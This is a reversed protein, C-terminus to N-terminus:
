RKVVRGLEESEVACAQKLHAHTVLSRDDAALFAARIAANRINGGSFEWADAIDDLDVDPALLSAAPLHRRWLEIRADADPADFTVRFQLRRLFAEDIGVLANTTLIAIGDFHDLKQLLFNVELNAYRDSSSKVETRKGFLSDAEDFLLVAHGHRAEAFLRALNKETEGVWKSVIQSLDVRYLAIGLETAIVSAALTKGTGPPGSFLAAIGEGTVHKGLGWQRYVQEAHRRYLVMERLRTIVDKPLILGDWPVRRAVREVLNGLRPRLAEAVEAQAAPSPDELTGRHYADVLAEVQGVAPALPAISRATIVAADAIGDQELRAHALQTGTGPPLRLLPVVRIARTLSTPVPDEDPAYLLVPTALRRAARVAAGLRRAVIVPDPEREPALDFAPLAGALAADRLIRTWGLELNADSPVQCSWLARGDRGGLVRGITHLSWPSPGVLLIPASLDPLVSTPADINPRLGPPSVDAVLTPPTIVADRFAALVSAPVRPIAGTALGVAGDVELLGTALLGRPGGARAVMALRADVDACALDALFGFTIGARPALADYSRALAGDLLPAVAVMLLMLQERDDDIWDAIQRLPDGVSRPWSKLIGDAIAAVTAARSGVGAVESDPPGALHGELGLRLWLRAAAARGLALVDTARSGTDAM